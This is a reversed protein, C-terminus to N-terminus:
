ITYAAPRYQDLNARVWEIARELGAPLDTQPEWGLLERARSNDCVLQMVESGAPRIRQEDLVIEKEEGLIEFITAAVEGVTVGSGQGLNVVEGIAEPTAGARVMGDVTDEVYTLDRIPDLSGLQVTPGSLAQSIITPIVARASQRPGYTNFPRVTAVPM